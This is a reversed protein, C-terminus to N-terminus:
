KRRPPRQGRLPTLRGSHSSYVAKLALALALALASARASPPATGKCLFREDGGSRRRLQRPSRLCLMALRQCAAIPSGM